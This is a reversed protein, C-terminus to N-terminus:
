GFVASSSPPHAAGLRAAYPSRRPSKVMGVCTSASRTERQGQARPRDGELAVFGLLWLVWGLTFGNM